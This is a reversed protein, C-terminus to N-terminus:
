HGLSITVGGTRPRRDRPAGHCHTGAGCDNTGAQFTCHWRGPRLRLLVFVANLTVESFEVPNWLISDREQQQTVGVWM